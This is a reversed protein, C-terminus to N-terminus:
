GVTADRVEVVFRDGESRATLEFLMEFPVSVWQVQDNWEPDRSVLGVLEDAITDVDAHSVFGEVSVSVQTRVLLTGDPGISVDLDYDSDVSEISPDEIRSQVAEGAQGPPEYGLLAVIAAEVSGRLAALRADTLDVATRVGVKHLPQAPSTANAERALAVLDLTAYRQQSKIPYTAYVYDIFQGFYLRRTQDMVRDLVAREDAALSALLPEPQTTTIRTKPSGFANTESVVKFHPDRQATEVIDPVWPGYHNFIWRVPTLQRDLVRAAEWDALYVLKTLRANSLEEPHPYNVCLYAMAASLADATANM